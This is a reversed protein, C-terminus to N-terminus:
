IVFGLDKEMDTCKLQRNNMFYSNQELPRGIHMVKCKSVNFLMKWEESWQCLKQLDEQLREGDKDDRIQSFIKTDDAFKLIWNSINVDLDNIYVLFLLPGLVSGQPVGSLVELWKSLEVRIGVTQARGKLWQEIWNLVKGDIGHNRLKFLLRNHPVKDFAKALDLFV